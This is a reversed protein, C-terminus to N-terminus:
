KYSYNFRAMFATWRETDLTSDRNTVESADGLNNFIQSESPLDRVALTIFDDKIDQASFVFRADLTHVDNFTNNYNV